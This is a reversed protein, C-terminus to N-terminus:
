SPRHLATATSMPEVIPEPMKRDGAPTVSLNGPGSGNIATHTAPPSNASHPASVSASSDPAKGSVPPAYTKMRSPQPRM